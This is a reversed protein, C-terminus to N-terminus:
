KMLLGSVEFLVVGILSCYLAKSSCDTKKIYDYVVNFLGIAIFGGSAFICLVYLLEMILEM